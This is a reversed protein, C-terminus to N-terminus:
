RRVLERRDGARRTTGKQDLYELLPIAWKRTLGFRDKFDGVTFDVWGTAELDTELKEIARSALFLGKPLRVIKKRQHLFRLVGDFIQPKAGIRLRIDAPSPPTLGEREFEALISQSLTSEEDTLDDGRGPLNLTDAQVVLISQEALWAIYTEATTRGAPTLIARVAEAKPMGKALRERKFYDGLVRRAKHAVEAYVTATIYRHTSESRGPLRLLRGDNTKEALTARSDEETEGLRAALDPASLGAEGSASVWFELAGDRDGALQELASALRKGRYRLWAPDLITGGGLTTQPSPRRIVFRDGRAATVPARLRIEVLATGGPELAGPTLPRLKGLVESAYLHFRVERFGKFAAPASDLLSMRALISVTPTYGGAAILQTGRPAEELTAGTLQLATREGARAQDRDEGHVQISRIRVDKGSPSLTLTQRPELTGSALTGTVLVGLGQLHFSRDIPLRPPKKLLDDRAELGRAHELLADRLQPVGEGSVSSVPLIPCGAFATDELAETLELEALELMDDDVLDAKTLAVLGARIGLLRCIDLHERTQPMVGEDAAVVLMMLDIGGLGALANHVFREHGPVDVFGIQLAGREADDDVLHAFGIDITIGRDKEEVWRDCDIGTLAEVLSTKGHDIHGATGVIVRRREAAEPSM